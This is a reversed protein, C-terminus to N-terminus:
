GNKRQRSVNKTGGFIKDYNDNYNQKAKGSYVSSNIRIRGKHGLRVPKEITGIQSM